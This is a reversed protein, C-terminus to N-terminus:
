RSYLAKCGPCDESLYSRVRQQADATLPVGFAELLSIVECLPLGMVNAFCGDFAEVPHFGEHQIAYAGAKDFPDGSAVYAAIEDDSYNRMTVPSGPSRTELRGTSTDLLTVATYVIHTRGRLRKLMAIAEGADRPKELVDNRDVVITDAAVIIASGDVIRAVAQAKERSLRCAYAEPDEGARQQEDLQPTVIDFPLGLLLLLERRRPSQSALILRIPRRM